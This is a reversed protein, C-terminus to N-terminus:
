KQFIPLYRVPLQLILCAMSTAYTPSVEDVWYGDSKQQPLVESVFKKYYNKFSEFGSQYLAQSSYYHGYFYHYNGWTFRRRSRIRNWLWNISKKVSSSKYEGASQRSVIGAATLAWSTRSMRKSQYLYAGDRRECSKIYKMAQKVHSKPVSIGVNQAARLSQLITVTVSVDADKPRPQYRWGGERTQAHLILRVARKLVTRIRRSRTMGYIEALFLTAFGHEYMRTGKYSIYGTNQDSHELIFDLAGKVVHSYKGRSPFHGASIFALGAISTVGVNHHREGRVKDNLKYGVKATWSGDDNQKEALWRLGSEVSSKIKDTYLRSFDREWLQDGARASTRTHLLLFLVLLVSFLIHSKHVNRMVIVNQFM